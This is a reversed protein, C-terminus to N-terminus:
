QGAAKLTGSFDGFATKGNGLSGGQGFTVTFSGSLASGIKPADHLVLSGRVMPPVQQRPDDHVARSVAGRIAPGASVKDTLAITLPADLKLGTTDATVKLVTDNGSTGAVAKLYIVAIASSSQELSVTSFDLAVEDSLSGELSNGSGCSACALLAPVLWARARPRGRSM